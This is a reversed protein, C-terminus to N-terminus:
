NLSISPCISLLLNVLMWEGFFLFGNQRQFCLNVLNTVSAYELGLEEIKNVKMAATAQSCFLGLFTIASGVSNLPRVLNGFVLVSSVIVVVRNMTNGASFTLPFNKDFAQYFSQNYLHYFVGMVLVSIYFTSPNGIAELAKYYGPIWQSGEISIPVDLFM